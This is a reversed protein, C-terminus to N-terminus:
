KKDELPPRDIRRELGEDKPTFLVKGCNEKFMREITEVSNAAIKEVREVTKKHVVVAAEEMMSRLQKELTPTLEELLHEREIRAATALDHKTEQKALEVNLNVANLDEKLDHRSKIIQRENSKGKLLILIQNVLLGAFSTMAAIVLLPSTMPVPKGDPGITVKHEAIAVWVIGFLTATVVVALLAALILYTRDEPQEVQMMAKDHDPPYPLQPTPKRKSM